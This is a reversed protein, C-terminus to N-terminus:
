SLCPASNFCWLLDCFNLAQKLFIESINSPFFYLNNLLMFVFNYNPLIVLPFYLPQQPLQGLSIVLVVFGFKLYGKRIHIVMLILSTELFAFFLSFFHLYIVLYIPLCISLPHIFNTFNGFKFNSLIKLFGSVMESSDSLRFVSCLTM